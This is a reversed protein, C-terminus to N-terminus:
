ASVSYLTATGHLDVTENRALYAGSGRTLTGASGSTCVLVTHETTTTLSFAGNVEHRMVSFPAPSRYATTIASITETDVRADGTPSLNAVAFFEALDVHKNTFAARLVNDSSGQVELALGSLYAHVCGADLFLAEGPALRLHHMLLAVASRPDNHHENLQQMARSPATPATFLAGNLIARATDAVGHGRVHEAIDPAGAESCQAVAQDAGVFGCLADFRHLAIVMEPKAYPDSYMRAPADLAIGAANERAFGIAAQAVTPHTQLSLPAAAALLKVIFPLEGVEDALYSPAPLHLSEDIQAPGRPHTGYWIEAWPRGDATIELLEPLAFRDGWAYHAVAGKLRLM